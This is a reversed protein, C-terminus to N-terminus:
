GRLGRSAHAREFFHLAAVDLARQTPGAPPDVTRAVRSLAQPNVGICQAEPHLLESDPARRGRRDDDAVEPAHFRSLLAKVM